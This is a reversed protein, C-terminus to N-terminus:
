INEDMSAIGSKQISKFYEYERITEMFAFMSYGSQVEGYPSIIQTKAKQQSSITPYTSVLTHHKLTNAM